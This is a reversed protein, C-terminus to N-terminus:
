PTITQAEQVVSYAVDSTPAMSNTQLLTVIEFFVADSIPTATGLSSRTKAITIVDGSSLDTIQYTKTIESM